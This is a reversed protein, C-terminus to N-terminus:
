EVDVVLVNEKDSGTSRRSSKRVPKKVDGLMLQEPSGDNISLSRLAARTRKRGTPEM